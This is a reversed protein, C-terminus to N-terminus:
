ILQADGRKRASELSSFVGKSYATRGKMWEIAEERTLESGTIANDINFGSQQQQTTTATQNQGQTDATTGSNAPEGSAAQKLTDMSKKVLSKKEEETGANMAKQLLNYADMASAM